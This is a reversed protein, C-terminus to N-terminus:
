EDTDGERIPDSIQLRSVCVTLTTSGRVTLSLRVIMTVLMSLRDPCPGSTKLPAVTM